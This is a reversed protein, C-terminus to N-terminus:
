TPQQLVEYDVATLQESITWLRHASEKNYAPPSAKMRVPYGRMQMFHPGYFESGKVDPATAAYLQPLAGMAASQSFIPGFLEYLWREIVAGSENVSTRQLNTLAYGPHAAVALIDVGAADLKRQLEFTFLLNALKSQSYAGFRSYSQKGQLDKFNMRGFFSAGSTVNVVRSGPTHLLCRLLLGTLAFHGLHNVGFQMEFGDATEKRPIAMIGANNILLDLQKYKQEFQDAFGRISKLSALDLQMTEVSASPDQEQMDAQAAQAKELNRCAMIVHAGKQALAFATEYGLGSNAGTVIAIRGTQDPM